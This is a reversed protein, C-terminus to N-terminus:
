RGEGEAADLLLKEALEFGPEDRRGSMWSNYCEAALAYARDIGGVCARQGLAFCAKSSEEDTGGSSRIKQGLWVGSEFVPRLLAPCPDEEFQRAVEDRMSSDALDTRVDDETLNRDM